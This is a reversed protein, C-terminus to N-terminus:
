PDYMFQTTAGASTQTVRNGFDDYQFSWSGTPSAIGTLQNQANFSYTTTGGGSAASVM